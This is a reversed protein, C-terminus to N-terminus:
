MDCWCRRLGSAIHWRGLPCRGGYIQWKCEATRGCCENGGPGIWKNMLTNMWDRSRRSVRPMGMMM